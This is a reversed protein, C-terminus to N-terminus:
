RHTEQRISTLILNRGHKEAMRWLAPLCQDCVDTYAVAPAAFWPPDFSASVTAVEDCRSCTTM